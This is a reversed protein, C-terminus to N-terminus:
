ICHLVKRIKEEKPCVRGVLIADDWRISKRGEKLEEIQPVTLRLAIDGRKWWLFVLAGARHFSQLAIWQHLKVGSKTGVPLRASKYHKLEGGLFKGTKIQVGYVDFPSPKAFVLEGRDNMERQVPLLEMIAIGKSAYWRAAKSFEAEFTEM